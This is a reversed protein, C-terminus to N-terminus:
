VSFLFSTFFCVRLADLDHAVEEETAGNVDPAAPFGIHRQIGGLIQVEWNYQMRHKIRISHKTPIKFSFEALLQTLQM